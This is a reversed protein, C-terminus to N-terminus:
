RLQGIIATACLPHQRRLEILARYWSLLESHEALAQEDWQLRSRDFTSPSQPDPVSSSEWEFAAFEKRRGECVQEGLGKDEHATFYQFPSSAAWEEGQFLLPIFPSTLLLAAAIKLRRIPVLHGLRDGTARNGVQDHNQASVVFRWGPVDHLPRGHVANAIHRTRAPTCSCM